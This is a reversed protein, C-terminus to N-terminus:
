KKPWRISAMAQAFAANFAPPYVKRALAVGRTVFNLHLKVPLAIGFALLLKIGPKAPRGGSYLRQYFGTVGGITAFFVNPRAALRKVAGRTLQGYQDLRTAIPNLLVPGPLVHSGGIEYPLLYKAVEDRIYVLGTMTQATAKRYLVGNRTFPRPNKFTSAINAREATQVQVVVNNIAQRTAFPITTKAVKNLGAVVARTDVKFKVPIM